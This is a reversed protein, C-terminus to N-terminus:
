KLLAKFMAQFFGWWSFSGSGPKQKALQTETVESTPSQSETHEVSHTSESHEVCPTSPPTRANSDLSHESGLLDRLEGDCSLYDTICSDSVTAASISDDTDPCTTEASVSDSCELKQKTPLFRKKYQNEEEPKVKGGNEFIARRHKFGYDGINIKPKREQNAADGSAGQEFKKRLQSVRSEGSSETDPAPQLRLGSVSESPFLALAVTLKMFTKSISMTM